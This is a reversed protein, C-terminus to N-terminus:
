QNKKVVYDYCTINFNVPIILIFASGGGSSLVDELEEAAGRTDSTVLRPWATAQKRSCAAAAELAAELM